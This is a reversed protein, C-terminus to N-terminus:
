YFSWVSDIMKMAIDYSKTNFLIDSRRFNVFGTYILPVITVCLLHSWESLEMTDFLMKTYDLPGDM